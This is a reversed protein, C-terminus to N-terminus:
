PPLPPGLDAAPCRWPQRALPSLVGGRGGLGWLVAATRSLSALESEPHGWALGDRLKQGSWTPGSAGPRAGGTDRDAGHGPSAKASAPSSWMDVRCRREWGPLYPQDPPGLVSRALLAWPQEAAGLSASASCREAGPLPPCPEPLTAQRECWWRDQGGQAMVSLTPAELLMRGPPPHDSSFKDGGRRFAAHTTKPFAPGTTVVNGPCASCGQFPGSASVARPTKRRWPRLPTQPNRQLKVTDPQRSPACPGRTGASAVLSGSPDPGSARPQAREQPPRKQWEPGRPHSGLAWAPGAAPPGRPPHQARDPDGGAGREGPEKQTSAVTAQTHPPAWSQQDWSGLIAPLTGLWPTLALSPLWSLLLYSARAGPAGATQGTALAVGADATPRDQGSRGM